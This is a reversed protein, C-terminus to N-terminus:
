LLQRLVLYVRSSFRCSWGQTLYLLKNKWSLYNQTIALQTIQWLEYFLQRTILLFQWNRPECTVPWMRFKTRLYNAFVSVQNALLQCIVLVIYIYVRMCMNYLLLCNSFYALSLFSLHLYKHFGQSPLSNSELNLTTVCDVIDLGFDLVLFTVRKQEEKKM